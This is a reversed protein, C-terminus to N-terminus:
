KNLKPLNLWIPDQFIHQSGSAQSVGGRLCPESARAKGLRRGAGGQSWLQGRDECSTASPQPWALTLCSICFVASAPRVQPQCCCPIDHLCSHPTRMEAPFNRLWENRIWTCLRDLCPPMSSKSPEGTHQWNLGLYKSHPAQELSLKESRVAYLDPLQHSASGGQSASRPQLYRYPDVKAGQIDRHGSPFGRCIELRQAETTNVVWAMTLCEALPHAM